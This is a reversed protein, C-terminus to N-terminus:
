PSFGMMKEKSSFPSCYMIPLSTLRTKNVLNLKGNSNGDRLNTVVEAQESTSEVLLVGAQGPPIQGIVLPPLQHLHAVALVDGGAGDGEQQGVLHLVDEVAPVVLELPLLRHGADVGASGWSAGLWGLRDGDHRGHWVGGVQVGHGLRRGDVPVSHYVLLHSSEREAEVVGVRGRDVLVGGLCLYEDGDPEVHVNFTVFYKKKM